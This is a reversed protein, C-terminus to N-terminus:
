FGEEGECQAKKIRPCMKECKANQSNPPYKLMNCHKTCM